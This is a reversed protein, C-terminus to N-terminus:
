QKGIQVVHIRGDGGCFGFLDMKNAYDVSYVGKSLNSIRGFGQNNNKRDFVKVQNLNSCGAVITDNNAKSFECSYIYASEINQGAEWEITSIKKRSAYDWLELQDKNRWSGTLIQNGRIDLADGSVAPGYISGFSKGDRIDWFYITNDWGASLIINPDEPNFKISFIRNAHGPYQWMGGTLEVLLSKTNEDYIRVKRDKGATAFNSGDRNYDLCLVQNEPETIRHLLKGSPVHWHSINGDACSSVLVHKTKSIGTHPRWRLCTIPIGTVEAGNMVHIPKESATLSYVHVTGESSGSAILTDDPDFRCCLLDVNGPGYVKYENIHKSYINGDKVDKNAQVEPLPATEDRTKNPSYDEIIKTKEDDLNTPKETNVNLNTPEM